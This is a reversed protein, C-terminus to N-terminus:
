VYNGLSSQQGVEIKGYVGDYGPHIKVKNDRLKIILEAIKASTVKVLDEYAVNMLIELETKFHKVLKDYEQWVSKTSVAKSMVTSIIESLPILHYVRKADKPIYGEPRDALQEVRHLVGITM